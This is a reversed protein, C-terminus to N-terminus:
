FELRKFELPPREARFVNQNLYHKAANTMRVDVLRV